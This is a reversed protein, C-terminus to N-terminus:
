LPAVRSLRRAEARCAADHYRRNPLASPPLLRGCGSCVPPDHHLVNDVGAPYWGDSPGYFRVLAALHRDDPLMHGLEIRSLDGRALGTAASADGLSRDGRLVRLFTRVRM